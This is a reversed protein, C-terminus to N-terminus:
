ALKPCNLHRLALADGQQQFLATAAAQAHEAAEKGHTLAMAHSAWIVTTPNIVSTNM